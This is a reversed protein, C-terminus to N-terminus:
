DIEDVIHAIEEWNRGDDGGRKREGKEKIVESFYCL